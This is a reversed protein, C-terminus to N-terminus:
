AGAATNTNATPASTEKVEEFTAKDFSKKYKDDLEVIAGREYLDGNLYVKEAIVKLKM